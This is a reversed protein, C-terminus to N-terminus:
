VRGVGDEQYVWKRGLVVLDEPLRVDEGLVEDVNDLVHKIDRVNEVQMTTQVFPVAAGGAVSDHEVIHSVSVAHEPVFVAVM